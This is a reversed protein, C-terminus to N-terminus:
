DRQILQVFNLNKDAAVWLKVVHGTSGLASFLVLTLTSSYFIDKHYPSFFHKALFDYSLSFVFKYVYLFVTKIFGLSRNTCKLQQLQDVSHILSGM